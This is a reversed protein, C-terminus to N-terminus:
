NIEFVFRAGGSASDTVSIDWGHVYCIRKVIFLGYGTSDSTSTYGKEFINEKNEQPIGKGDDEIFFGNNTSGITINITSSNHDIANTIINSVARRFLGENSLISKGDLNEKVDMHGGEFGESEKYNNFFEYLSIEEVDDIEGMTDALLEMDSIISEMKELSGEINERYEEQVEDSDEILDLYGLACNLPNKLDHSVFSAFNKFQDRQQALEQKDLQTQIDQGIFRALFEVLVRDSETFTIDKDGDFFCVTGYVENDVYIKSGIYSHIGAKSAILDSYQQHEEGTVTFAVDSNITHQCYSEDIPCDHMSEPFWEGYTYITKLRTDTTQAIFGASIELNKHGYELVENMKQDFSEYNSDFLAHIDRITEANISDDGSYDRSKPGQAM